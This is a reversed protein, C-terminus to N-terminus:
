CLLTLRLVTAESVRHTLYRDYRGMTPAWRAVAQQGPRQPMSFAALGRHTYVVEAEGTEDTSLDLTVEVAGPHSARWASGEAVLSYDGRAFRQFRHALPRRPEGTCQEAIHLLRAELASPIPAPSWAYRGRHALDFREFTTPSAGCVLDPAVLGHATAVELPGGRFSAILSALTM